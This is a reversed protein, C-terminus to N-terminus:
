RVLTSAPVKRFNRKIALLLKVRIDDLQLVVDQLDFGLFFHQKCFTVCKVITDLIKKLRAAVLAELVM